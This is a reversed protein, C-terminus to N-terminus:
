LDGLGTTSNIDDVGNACEESLLPAASARHEALGPVECQVLCKVSPVLPM